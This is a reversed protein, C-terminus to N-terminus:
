GKKKSLSGFFESLSKAQTPGKAIEMKFKAKERKIKVTYAHGSDSAKKGADSLVAKYEDAGVHEWTILGEKTLTNYIKQEKSNIDDMYVPEKSTAIKHLVAFVEKSGKIKKGGKKASAAAKESATMGNDVSTWDGNVKRSKKGENNKVAGEPYGDDKLDTEPSLKKLMELVDPAVKSLPTVDGNDYYDKNSKTAKEKSAEIAKRLERLAKLLSQVGKGKKSIIKPESKDTSSNDVFTWADCYPKLQEFTHENSTNSLVVGVPVYRNSKGMFRHVAREAAIQRPCYMYHSEISYGANKFYEVKKMANKSTKLTADIVVNLGLAKSMFLIKELIDSSEEHVQAANWGEYEDLKGKIEDADLVISKEPDYVKGKFWSKGSGGRGGLMIMVPPKGEEPKANKIKEVSLVEQIIKDHLKRRENTYVASAAEGEVRYKAITEEIHKLREETKVIEAKIEPYVKELKGLLKEADIEADDFKKNYEAANFENPPIRDVDEGNKSPKGVQKGVSLKAKAKKEPTPKLHAIAHYSVRATKGDKTKVTVTKTSSADVIVADVVGEKTKVKVKDGKDFKHTGYGHKSGRVDEPDISGPKVWRYAQYTGRASNITVKKRVLNERAKMVLKM